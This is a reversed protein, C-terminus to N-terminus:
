VETNQSQGDLLEHKRKAFVDKNARCRLVV